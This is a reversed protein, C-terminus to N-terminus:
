CCLHRNSLRLGRRSEARGWALRSRCPRFGRSSQPRAEFGSWLQPPGGRCPRIPQGIEGLHTRTRSRTRPTPATRTTTIAVTKSSWSSPAGTPTPATATIRCRRCGLRHAAIWSLAHECPQDRRQESPATMQLPCVRVWPTRRHGGRPGCGTGQRMLPRLRCVDICPFGFDSTPTGESQYTKATRAM